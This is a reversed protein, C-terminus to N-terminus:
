RDEPPIVYDHDEATVYTNGPDFINTEQLQGSVLKYFKNETEIFFIQGEEYGSLDQPIDHLVVIGNRINLKRALADAFNNLMASIDAENEEESGEGGDVNFTVTGVVNYVGSDGVLTLTAKWLGPTDLLTVIKDDEYDDPTGANSIFTSFDFLYCPYTGDPNPGGGVKFYQSKGDADEEYTFDVPVMFMVPYKSGTFDPRELRIHADSIKSLDVGDFYACIQFAQSGVRPINGYSDLQEKLVGKKNFWLLM